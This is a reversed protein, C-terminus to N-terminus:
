ARSRHQVIVGGYLDRLSAGVREWRYREAFPRARLARERRAEDDQLIVSLCAALAPATREAVWGARSAEIDPALDVGPSVVVPVGAALAEVAALGFNEQASPHLSVAAGAVLRSREPGDVWGAFHIRPGAPGAAAQARLEQELAPEGSGAIVLRWRGTAPNGALHHAAAIALEIGKKRDIRGLMLLVREAQPESSPREFWEEDIGLGLVHGPPLWPLQHEASAREAASTYHMGTARTLAARLGAALFVAKRRAHHGLSWAALSGLPRVLYPRHGRWAARSAALTSHSFVAHVHVIDYRDVHARLWAALGPSWKFSSSILRPFFITRAGAHSCFEGARVDRLRAPGDADTTAIVAEVGLSELARCMGTVARAPGGDRQAVSPIVHLVKM